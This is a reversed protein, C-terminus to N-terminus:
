LSNDIDLVYRVVSDSGKKLTKFVDDIQDAKVLEITPKIGNKHCFEICEQTEPLGGSVSGTLKSRKFILAASMVQFPACILVAVASFPTRTHTM